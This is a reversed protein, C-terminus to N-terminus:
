TSVSPIPPNLFNFPNKPQQSTAAGTDMHMWDNTAVGPYQPWKGHQNIMPYPTKNSESPVVNGGINVRPSANHAYQHNLYLKKNEPKGQVIPVPWTTFDGQFNPIKLKSPNFQPQMFETAHRAYPNFGFPDRETTLDMPTKFKSEFWQKGLESGAADYMPINTMLSNKSPDGVYPLPGFVTLQHACAFVPLLSLFSLHQLARWASM